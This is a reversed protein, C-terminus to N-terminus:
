ILKHGSSSLSLSFFLYIINKECQTEMQGFMSTLTRSPSTVLPRLWACRGGDDVPAFTLQSAAAQEGSQGDWVELGNTHGASLTLTENPRRRVMVVPDPREPNQSVRRRELKKRTWFDIWSVPAPRPSRQRWGASLNSTKNNNKTKKINIELCRKTDLQAVKVDPDHTHTAGKQPVTALTRNQAWFFRQIFVPHMTKIGVM